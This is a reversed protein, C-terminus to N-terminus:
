RCLSTTKNATQVTKDHGSFSSCGKPKPDQDSEISTESTALSSRRESWRFISPLAKVLPWFGSEEIILFALQMMAGIDLVVFIPMWVLIADPEISSTFAQIQFWVTIIALIISLAQVREWRHVRILTVPFHVLFWALTYPWPLFSGADDPRIYSANSVCNTGLDFSSSFDLFTLGLDAPGIPTDNKLCTNLSM